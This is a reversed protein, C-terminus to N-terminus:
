HPLATIGAQQMLQIVHEKSALNLKAKAVDAFVQLKLMERKTVMVNDDLMANAKRQEANSGGANLVAKSFAEEHELAAHHADAQADQWDKLAASFADM